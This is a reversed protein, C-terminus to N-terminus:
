WSIVVDIVGVSPPALRAFTSRALDVVRGRGYPGRSVVRCTVTAGSTRSTVRLVTGMPAVNAACTGDAARYWTAKGTITRAPPTTAVPVARSASEVHRVTTAMRRATPHRHPATPAPAVTTTTSAVVPAAVTTTPQRVRWAGRSPRAGFARSAAGADAAGAVAPAALGVPGPGSRLCLFPALM